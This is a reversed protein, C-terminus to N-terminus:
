RTVPKGRGGYRRAVPSGVRRLWMQANPARELLRDSAAEEDSDVEFEGTEIDIVVFKGKEDPELFSQLKDTYIAEGRRAFEVKSYRPKAQAM